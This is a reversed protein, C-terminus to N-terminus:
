HEDACSAPSLGGTPQYNFYTEDKLTAHRFLFLFRTATKMSFHAVLWITGDLPAEELEFRTGPVVTAIFGAVAVSRTVEAEVKVWHFSDSDIWITGVMGTLVKTERSRPVYGPQPIGRVVYTERGLMTARGILEFQMARTFEELL